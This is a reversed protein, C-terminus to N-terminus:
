GNYFFAGTANPTKGARLDKFINEPFPPVAESPGATGPKPTFVPGVGAENFRAWVQGNPMPVLEYGKGGGVTRKVSGKNLSSMANYFRDAGLNAPGGGAPPRTEASAPAPPGAPPAPPGAVQPVYTPVRPGTAPTPPPPASGFAVPIYRGFGAGGFGPVAPTTGTGTRSQGPLWIQEAPLGLEALQSTMATRLDALERARQAKAAEAQLRAQALAEEAARAQNSAEQLIQMNTAAIRSAAAGSATPVGSAAMQAKIFRGANQLATQKNAEIDALRAQTTRALENIYQDLAAAETGATSAATAYAARLADAIARLTRDEQTATQATTVGAMVPSQARAPPLQFGVGTPSQQQAVPLMSAVPPQQPPPPPGDPPAPINLAEREAALQKAPGEIDVGEWLLIAVEQPSLMEPSSLAKRAIFGTTGPGGIPSITQSAIAEKVARQIADLPVTKLIRVGKNIYPEIVARTELDLIKNYEWFTMWGGGPKTVGRARVGALAANYLMKYATAADPSKQQSAIAWGPISYAVGNAM